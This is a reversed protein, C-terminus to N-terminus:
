LRTEFSQVQDVGGYLGELATQFILVQVPSCLDQRLQRINSLFSDNAFYYETEGICDNLNWAFSYLPSTLSEPLLGQCGYILTLYQVTTPYNFLTHNLSTTSVNQVCVNDKLERRAITVRDDAQTIELVLFEAGSIEMIPEKNYM